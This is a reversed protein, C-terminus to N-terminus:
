WRYFEVEKRYGGHGHLLRRTPEYPSAFKAVMTVPADPEVSDYQLTVRGVVGAAGQQELSAWGHSAVCAAKLAGGRRLAWTLWDDTLEDPGTPIHTSVESVNMRGPPTTEM